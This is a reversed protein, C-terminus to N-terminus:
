DFEISSTSFRPPQTFVQTAPTFEFDTAFAEESKSHPIVIAQITNFNTKGFGWNVFNFGMLLYHPIFRGKATTSSIM